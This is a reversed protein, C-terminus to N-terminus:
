RKNLNIPKIKFQKFKVSKKETDVISIAFSYQLNQYSKLKGSLIMEKYEKIIINRVFNIKEKIDEYECTVMRCKTDHSYSIDNSMNMFFAITVIKM